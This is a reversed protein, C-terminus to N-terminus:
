NDSEEDDAASFDIFGAQCKGKFVKTIKKFSGIKTYNKTNLRKTVRSAVRVNLQQYLRTGRLPDFCHWSTFLRWINEGLYYTYNNKRRTKTNWIMGM